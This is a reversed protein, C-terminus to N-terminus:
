ANEKVDRRALQEAVRPDPTGGHEPSMRVLRLRVDLPLKPKAESWDVLAGAANAYSTAHEEDPFTVPLRRGTGVHTVDWVGDDMEFPGTLRPFVVLGETQTPLAGIGQRVPLVGGDELPLNTVVEVHVTRRTEPTATM